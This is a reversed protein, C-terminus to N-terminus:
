RLGQVRLRLGRLGFGFDLVEFGFFLFASYFLFYSYFIFVFSLVGFGFDLVFFVFFLFELVRSRGLYSIFVLFKASFM